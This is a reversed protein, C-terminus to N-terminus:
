LYLFSGKHEQFIDCFAQFADCHQQFADLHAQYNDKSTNYIVRPLYYGLDVFKKCYIFIIVRQFNIKFFINKFITYSFKTKTSCM